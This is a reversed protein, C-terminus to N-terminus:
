ASFWDGGDQKNGMGRNILVKDVKAEGEGLDVDHRRTCRGEKVTRSGGRKAQRPMRRKKARTRRTKTKRTVSTKELSLDTELRGPGEGKREKKEVRSSVERKKKKQKVKEVRRSNNIEKNSGIKSRTEKEVHSERASQKPKAVLKKATTEDGAQERKRQKKAGKKGPTRKHVRQPQTGRQPHRNSGGRWVRGRWWSMKTREDEETHAHNGRGTVIEAHDKGRHVFTNHGKLGQARIQKKKEKQGRPLAGHKAHNVGGETNGMDM